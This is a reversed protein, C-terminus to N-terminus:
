PLNTETSCNSCLFSIMSMTFKNWQQLKLLSFNGHQHYTQKLVQTQASFIIVWTLHTETSSNQNLFYDSAHYIHKLVPTKTSFTILSMTFTNWYQLKPQSLLWVWPLHTETSSNQNLFYDSEHYIHKLVPTQASFLEPFWWTKSSFVWLLLLHKKKIENKLLDQSQM